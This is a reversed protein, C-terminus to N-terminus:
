STSGGSESIGRLKTCARAQVWQAERAQPDAAQRPVGDLLSVTLPTLRGGVVVSHLGKWSDVPLSRRARVAAADVSVTLVGTAMDSAGTRNLWWVFNGLGYAVYARGLWGAGQLRHSHGGVIVDAGARELATATAVQAADPCAAYETGWHLFVVVVDYAARARAVAALLRTRDVNAAVGPTDADAATTRDLVQTSALVAVSVGRVDFVAPAFAAAADAGFGVVVPTRSAAQAALTDAVGVAGFDTAHNNALSVVDVGAEGLVTLAAPTTRFTFEKPVATGRSTIATELNVVAIDAAGLLPRVQALSDPRQLLPRLHREFHVDGAFALTIQDAGVGTPSSSTPRGPPTASPASPASSGPLTGTGPSSPSTPSVASPSPSAAASGPAGPAPTCGVLLALAGAGGVWGSHRRRSM